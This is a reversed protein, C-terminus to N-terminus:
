RRGKLMDAFRWPRSSCVLISGVIVLWAWSMVSFMYVDSHEPLLACDMAVLLVLMASLFLWGRWNGWAVVPQGEMPRAAGSM